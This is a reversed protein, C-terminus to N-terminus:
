LTTSKYCSVVISMEYTERTERDLTGNVFLQYGDGDDAVKVGFDSIYNFLLKLFLSKYKLFKLTLSIKRQTWHYAEM